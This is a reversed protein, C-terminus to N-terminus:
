TVFEDLRISQVYVVAEKEVTEGKLLSKLVAQAADVVEFLEQYQSLDALLKSSVAETPNGKVLQSILDRYGKTKKLNQKLYATKYINALIRDFEKISEVINDDQLKEVDITGGIGIDEDVVETPM